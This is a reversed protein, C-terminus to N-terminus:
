ESRPGHTGGILKCRGSREIARRLGGLDSETAASGAVVFQFEGALLRIAECAVDLGKYGRLQGVHCLVPIEAELGLEKLVASRSRPGVSVNPPAGIAM